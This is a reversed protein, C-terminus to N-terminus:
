DIVFPEFPTSIIYCEMGDEMEVKEMKSNFYKLNTFDFFLVEDEEEFEDEVIPRNEVRKLLEYGEEKFVDRIKDGYQKYARDLLAYASMLSAQQHKNIMNAGFICAITAAGTVIAPTYVPATKIIMEKKTLKEGKEEEAHELVDVAKPAAKAAMAATAVVGAAGVCTLIRSVVKWKNM